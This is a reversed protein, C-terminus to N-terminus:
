ALQEYAPVTLFEVFKESMVLKDFLRAAAISFPKRNALFDIIVNTDVFVQKM